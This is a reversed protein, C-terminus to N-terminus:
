LRILFKWGLVRLVIRLFGRYRVGTKCNESITLGFVGILIVNRLM